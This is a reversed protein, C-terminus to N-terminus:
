LGFILYSKRVPLMELMEQYLREQIDPHKALLYCTFMLTNATTEYGALVLVLANSKIEQDTLQLKAHLGEAEEGGADLMAQLIDQYRASKDRRRLAIVQTMNDNIMKIMQESLSLTKLVFTFVYAIAPFAFATETIVNSAHEMFFRVRHLFPDEPDRQCNAKLALACAAIVDCTLAQFMSHVDIDEGRANAENIVEITTELCKSVMPSMQKMKYASFCSIMLSRMPKWRQQDVQLVSHSFDETSLSPPPRVGFNKFDKIFVDQLIDLDKVIVYRHVGMHYAVFDGYKKLWDDIVVHCPRPDYRYEMVNGMIIGPQPGPVGADTLVNLFRRRRHLWVSVLLILLTLLTLTVASPVFTLGLM